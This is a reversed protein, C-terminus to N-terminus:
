SAAKPMSINKRVVLWNVTAIAITVLVVSLNRMPTQLFLIACFFLTLIAILTGARLRFADAEPQKRRLVLLAAAFSSYTLLRAVASLTINWRFNGALTFSLLMATYVLISVHPTRFKPHVAAFFRPFDGREALAFTLRPTHLM